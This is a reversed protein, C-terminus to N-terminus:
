DLRKISFWVIVQLVQDFFIQVEFYATVVQVLLGSCGLLLFNQAVLLHLVAKLGLLPALLFLMGLARALEIYV